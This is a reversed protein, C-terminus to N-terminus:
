IRPTLAAAITRALIAGSRRARRAYHRRIAESLDSKPPWPEPGVTIRAAHDFPALQAAARLFARGLSQNIASAALDALTEAADAGLPSSPPAARILALALLGALGYLQALSAPDYTVRAYGAPTRRVQGEGALHALAERVPTPSVGLAAAIQKIPLPAGQSAPAVRLQTRLAELARDFPDRDRM